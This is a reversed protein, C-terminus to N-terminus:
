FVIFIILKEKKILIYRDLTFINLYAVTCLNKNGQENVKRTRKCKRGILFTKEKIV